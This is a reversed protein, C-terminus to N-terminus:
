RAHERVARLEAMSATAAGLKSVVVGAVSNALALGAREDLGAAMAMAIVAIVSDGAGSVDYVERARAACHIADGERPFLVMGRDSLTVLVNALQHQAMLRNAKDQMDADSTVAGVVLEFEKLNPTVITAGRYRAFDNGKPDVLVPIKKEAARQILQDIHALGGKGYDSLVVAHHDDLLATFKDLGTALADAGPSSEFDARMLQQNRALIRLKITTQGAQDVVLHPAIGAATAIAAVKRGAEDDGTVALLACRGGLATVNCAVNGAGGIREENNEVAVVPVPAEPSIRDVTGFWYRDLMVDGVVLVARTALADLDDETFGLPDSPQRTPEAPRKFNPMAYPHTPTPAVSEM